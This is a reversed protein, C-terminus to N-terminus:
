KVFLNGVDNSLKENPTIQLNKIINLKSDKVANPDNSVINVFSDRLTKKPITIRDGILAESWRITDIEGVTFDGLSTTGDMLPNFDVNGRDVILKNNSIKIGWTTKPIKVLNTNMLLKELIIDLGINLNTEFLEYNGKIDASVEILRNMKFLGDPVNIDVNFTAGGSIYNATLTDVKIQTLTIKITINFYGLGSGVNESFSEDYLVSGVEKNLEGNVLPIIIEQIDPTEIYESILTSLKVGYNETKSEVAKIINSVAGAFKDGFGDTEGTDYGFQQLTDSLNKVTEVNSWEGFLYDGLSKAVKDGFGPKGTDYGKSTLFKQIQLFNPGPLNEQETLLRDGKQFSYLRKIKDIEETLSIKM